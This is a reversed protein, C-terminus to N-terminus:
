SKEYDWRSNSKSRNKKDLIEEKKKSFNHKKTCEKKEEEPCQYPTTSNSEQNQKTQLIDMPTVTDCEKAVMLPLVFDGPNTHFTYTKTKIVKM